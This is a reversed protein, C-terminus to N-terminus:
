RKVFTLEGKSTWDLLLSVEKKSFALPVRRSVPALSKEIFASQEFRRLLVSDAPLTTASTDAIQVLDRITNNAGKMFSTVHPWKLVDQLIIHRGDQIGSALIQADIDNDEFPFSVFEIKLKTKEAYDKVISKFLDMETAIRITRKKLFNLSTKKPWTVSKDYGAEGMVFYSDVPHIGYVPMAANFAERIFSILEGRQTLSLRNLNPQLTVASRNPSKRIAFEWKRDGLEEYFITFTSDSCASKDVFVVVSGLVDFAIRADNPLQNFKGLVLIKKEGQVDVLKIPWFRNHRSNTSLAERVM